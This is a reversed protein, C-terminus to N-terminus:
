AATESSSVDVAWGDQLEAVGYLVDVSVIHSLKSHDFSTIIRFSIGSDPDTIRVVNVGAPTAKFELPRTALVFADRHFALNHYTTIVSSTAVEPILTSEYIDMGFKTGLFARRIAEGGDQSWQSNTFKEETLLKSADYSSLVFSLPDTRPVKGDILKRRIKPFDNAILEGGSGTATYNNTALGSYLAFIDSEIQEALPGIANKLFDDLVNRSSILNALSSVQFPIIKHKNLTIAKVSSQADQTTFATGDTFDAVTFDSYYPVNVVRGQQAFDQDFDRRVLKTMFLKNRLYFQAEKALISWFLDDVDSTGSTIDITVLADTM